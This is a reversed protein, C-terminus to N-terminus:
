RERVLQSPAFVTLGGPVEASPACGVLMVTWHFLYNLFDIPQRKLADAVPPNNSVNDIENLSFWEVGM